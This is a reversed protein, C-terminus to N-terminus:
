LVSTNNDEISAAVDSPLVLSQFVGAKVGGSIWWEPFDLGLGPDNIHAVEYLKSGTARAAAVVDASFKEFDGDEFGAQGGTCDIDVWKRADSNLQDLLIERTEISGECCFYLIMPVKAGHYCSVHAALNAPNNRYTCSECQHTGSEVSDVWDPKPQFCAM